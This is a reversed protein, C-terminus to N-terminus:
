ICTSESNRTKSCVFTHCTGCRCCRVVQLNEPTNELEVDGGSTAVEEESDAGFDDLKMRKKAKFLALLKNELPLRSIVELTMEVSAGSLM